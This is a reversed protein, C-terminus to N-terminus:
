PTKWAAENILSIPREGNLALIRKKMDIEENRATRM